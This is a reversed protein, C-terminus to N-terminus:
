RPVEGWGAVVQKVVPFGYESEYLAVTGDRREVWGGASCDGVPSPELLLRRAGACTKEVCHKPEGDHYARHLRGALFRVAQELKATRADSM